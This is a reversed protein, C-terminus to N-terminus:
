KRPSKEGTVIYVVSDGIYSSHDSIRELYRLILTESMACKIDGGDGHIVQDVSARFKDDVFDDLKQVNRALEVDRNSFADVSMRIMEKTTKSTLLIVSKDCTSLDGCLELVEAIDYAYRGFRSFGYAIEMAAKVFRLDSAVPQYRAIIDIALEGVDDQLQRLEESWTHIENMQNKGSTYAEISASVSKESLVAMDLLIDSVRELGIDILRAL